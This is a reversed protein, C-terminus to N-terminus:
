DVELKDSIVNWWASSHNGVDACKWCDALMWALKRLVERWSTILKTLMEIM